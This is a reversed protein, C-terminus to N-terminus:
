WNVRFKAVPTTLAETFEWDRPEPVNVAVLRYVTSKPM